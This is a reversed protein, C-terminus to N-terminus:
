RFAKFVTYRPSVDELGKISIITNVKVKKGEVKSTTPMYYVTLQTGIKILSPLLEQTKGDPAKVAYGKNIVGVFTETKGSKADHYQMTLEHSADNVSTVDGTFTRGGYAPPYSGNEALGQQAFASVQCVWVLVVVAIAKKMM